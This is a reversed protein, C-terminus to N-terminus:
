TKEPSMRNVFDSFEMNAYGKQKDYLGAADIVWTPAYVHYKIPVLEGIVVGNKIANTIRPDNTYKFGKEGIAKLTSREKCKVTKQHYALQDPNVKVECLQCTSKINKSLGYLTWKGANKTIRYLCDQPRLRDKQVRRMFDENKKLLRDVEDNSEKQNKRIAKEALERLDVKQATQNWGARPQEFRSSYNSLETKGDEKANRSAWKQISFHPVDIGPENSYNSKTLPVTPIMTLSEDWHQRYKQFDTKAEEYMEKVEDLTYFVVKPGENLSYKKPETMNATM